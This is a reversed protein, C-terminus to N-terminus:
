ALCAPAHCYNDYVSRLETRIGFTLETARDWYFVKVNMGCYKVCDKVSLIFMITIRSVQLKRICIVINNM